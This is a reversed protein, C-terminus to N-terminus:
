CLMIATSLHETTDRKSGMSQVGGPEETWAIRRALIGSHTAM